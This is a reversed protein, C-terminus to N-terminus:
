KLGVYIAIIFPQLDSGAIAGLIPCMQLTSSALLAAGNVVIYLIIKSMSNVKKDDIYLFYKGFYSLKGTGIDSVKVMNLSKPTNVQM